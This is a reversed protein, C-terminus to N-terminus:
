FTSIWRAELSFAASPPKPTAICFVEQTQSVANTDKMDDYCRVCFPAFAMFCVVGVNFVRNLQSAMSPLRFIKDADSVTVTDTEHANTTQAVSISDAQPPPSDGAFGAV